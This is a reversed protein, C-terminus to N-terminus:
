LNKSYQKILERAQGADHDTPAAKVFIRLQALGNRVDGVEIQLLGLNYHVAHLAPDLKLTKQYADIAEKKKKPNMSLIWALNYQCKPNQQNNKAWKYVLEEAKEHNNEKLLIKLWENMAAIKVAPTLRSELDLTREFQLAAAKDDRNAVLFRALAFHTRPDDPGVITAKRAENIASDLDGLKEYCLSLKLLNDCNSASLQQIRRCVEKAEKYKKAAFYCDAVLLLSQWDGPNSEKIKLAAELATDISAKDGKELAARMEAIQAPYFKPQILLAAKADKLAIDPLGIALSLFSRNTMAQVYKKDKQLAADIHKCAERYEGKLALVAGLNNLYKANGAELKVAQQFEKLSDNINGDSVLDCGLLNHYNAENYNKQAPKEGPKPLVLGAEDTAQFLDQTNLLDAQKKFAEEFESKKSKDAPEPEAKKPKNRFQIWGMTLCYPLRQDALILYVHTKDGERSLTVRHDRMMRAKIAQCADAAQEQTLALAPQSFLFGSLALAFIRKTMHM